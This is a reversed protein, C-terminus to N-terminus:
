FVNSPLAIKKEALILSCESPPTDPGKTYIRPEVPLTAGFFREEIIRKGTAGIM